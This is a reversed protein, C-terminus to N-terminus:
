LVSRPGAILEALERPRALMPSHSGRLALAEVGLQERAATRAWVPNVMRDDEGLIYVSGVEPMAQLPCPVPYPAVAQPRLREFAARALEEDCDAYMQSWAVEFDIWRGRDQEDRELGAQYSPFLIPQEAEDLLDDFSKGPAAVIACLYVLRRVPRREAVLPITQGGLSHGVVVVDDDEAELAGVVVEAYDSFTAETDECPLDMAVARHGCAELEPALRGWCWAGHWAGHVLAFTAM